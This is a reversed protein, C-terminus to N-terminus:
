VRYVAVTVDDIFKGNQASRKALQRAIQECPANQKAIATITPMDVMSFLGDTAAIIVDGPKTRENFYLPRSKFGGLRPKRPIDYTVNILTNRRVIQIESDGLGAGRVWGHEIAFLLATAEGQLPVSIMRTEASKLLKVYDHDEEDFFVEDFYDAIEIAVKEGDINGSVSDSILFHNDGLDRFVDGSAQSDTKTEQHYGFEM